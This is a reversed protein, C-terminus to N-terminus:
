FESIEQVDIELEYISKMKINKINKTGNRLQLTFFINSKHIEIDQMKCIIITQDM